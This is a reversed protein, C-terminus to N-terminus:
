FKMKGEFTRATEFEEEDEDESEDINDLEDEIKNKEIQIQTLKRQLRNSRKRILEEEVQREQDELDKLKKKLRDRQAAYDKARGILSFRHRKFTPNEKKYYRDEGRVKNYRYQLDTDVRRNCVAFMQFLVLLGYVVLIWTLLSEAPSEETWYVIALTYLTVYGILYWGYVFTAATFTYLCSIQQFGESEGVHDYLGCWYIWIPAWSTLLIFLIELALSSTMDGPTAM